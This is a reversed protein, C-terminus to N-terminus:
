SDVLEIFWNRFRITDEAIFPIAAFLENPLLGVAGSFVMNVLLKLLMFQVVPIIGAFLRFTLLYLM